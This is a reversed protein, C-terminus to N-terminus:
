TYITLGHKYKDHFAFPFESGSVLGVCLRCQAISEHGDISLQWLDYPGLNDEYFVVYYGQKHDADVCNKRLQGLINIESNRGQYM